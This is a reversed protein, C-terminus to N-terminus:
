GKGKGSPSKRYGFSRIFHYAFHLQQYCKEHDKPEPWIELDCVPCVKIHRYLTM